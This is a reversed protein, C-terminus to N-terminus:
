NPECDAPVENVRVLGHKRWGARLLWGRPTGAATPGAREEQAREHQAKTLDRWGDFWAWSSCPDVWSRAVPRGDRRAHRRFNNLVYARVNRVERPTALVRLHYRETFVAGRRGSLANLGRAVRICFGQMGRSLQRTSDAEVVLHMHNGLISWDVIRFGDGECAPVFARRIVQVRSKTRLSTLDARVKLTVHAAHRRSLDPRVRHLVVKDRRKSPKRGAGPRWGGWGFTMVLQAPLKQKRAM